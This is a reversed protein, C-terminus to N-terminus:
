PVLWDAAMVGDVWRFVARRHAGGSRLPPLRLYELREIYIRLLAFVARSASEDPDHLAYDPALLRSGPGPLVDYTARAHGSLGAWAREVAAGGTEVVAHGSLRLQVRRTFDWGHLAARPAYRLEACKASRRDTYIDATRDAASFGRLVVTRLAPAGDLGATGLCPLRWPSDAVRVGEDLLAFAEALVEGLDAEAV